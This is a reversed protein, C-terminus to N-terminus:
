SSTAGRLLGVSGGILSGAITWPLLRATMGTVIVTPFDPYAHSHWANKFVMLGVTCWIATFGIVGGYLLAAPLWQGATLVRGGWWRMVTLSVLLTALGAGLLSVLLVTSDEISLWVLLIAGYGFTLFTHQRRQTPIKLLM